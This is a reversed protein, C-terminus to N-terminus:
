QINQSSKSWTSEPGRSGKTAEPKGEVTPIVWINGVKFAGKIRGESILKRVRTTSINLNSALQKVSVYM